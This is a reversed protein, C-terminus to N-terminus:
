LGNTGNDPIKICETGGRKGERWKDKTKHGMRYQIITVKLCLTFYARAPRRLKKPLSRLPRMWARTAISVIVADMMRSMDLRSHIRTIMQVQRTRTRSIILVAMSFTQLRIM